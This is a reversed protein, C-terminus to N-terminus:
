ISLSDGVDLINVCRHHLLEDSEDFIDIYPLAAMRELAACVAMLQRSSGGSSTSHSGLGGGDGAVRAAASLSSTNNNVPSAGAAAQQQGPQHQGVPLVAHQPTSAGHLQKAADSLEHHKLHLSLRHEPSVLLM